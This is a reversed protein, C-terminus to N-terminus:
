RLFMSLFNKNVPIGWMGSVALAPGPPLSSSSVYDLDEVHTLPVYAMSIHDKGRPTYRQLSSFGSTLTLVQIWGKSPSTPM